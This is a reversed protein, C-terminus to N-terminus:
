DSDEFANNVMVDDGGDGLASARISKDGVSLGGTFPGAHEGVLAPRVGLGGPTQTLSRFEPNKSRGLRTTAPLPRPANFGGAKATAVPDPLAPSAPQGYLHVELQAAAACFPIPTEVARRPASGGDSPALGGGPIL